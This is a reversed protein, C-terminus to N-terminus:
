DKRPSRILSRHPSRSLSRHPSHERSTHRHLSIGGPFAEDDRIYFKKDRRTVRLAVHEHSDVVSVSVQDPHLTTSKTFQLSVDKTHPKITVKVAGAMPSSAFHPGVAAEITHTTENDITIKQTTERGRGPQANVTAFISSLIALLFLKKM